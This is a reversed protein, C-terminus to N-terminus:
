SPLDSIIPHFIFAFLLNNQLQITTIIYKVFAWDKMVKISHKLIDLRSRERQVMKIIVLLVESYHIISFTHLELLYKKKKKKWKVTTNNNTFTYIVLVVYISHVQEHFTELKPVIFRM